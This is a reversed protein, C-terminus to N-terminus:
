HKKKKKKLLVITTKINKLLKLMTPNYDSNIYKINYKILVIIWSM